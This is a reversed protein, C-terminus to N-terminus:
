NEEEFVVDKHYQLYFWFFYLLVTLALVFSALYSLWSFSKIQYIILASMPVIVFNGFMSISFSWRRLIQAINNKCVWASGSSEDPAM